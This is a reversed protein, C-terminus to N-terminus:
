LLKEAREKNAEDKETLKTVQNLLRKRKIKVRIFYILFLIPLMILSAIASWKIGYEFWIFFLITTTIGSVIAEFYKKKLIHSLIILAIPIYYLNRNAKLFAFLIILIWAIWVIPTANKSIATFFSKFSLLDTIKKTNMM